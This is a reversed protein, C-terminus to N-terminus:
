KEELNFSILTTGGGAVLMSNEIQSNETLSGRARTRGLFVDESKFPAKMFVTDRAATRTIGILKDSPFKIGILKKDQNNFLSSTILFFFGDSGSEDVAAIEGELPILISRRSKISYCGIGGEREFIVRRDEDVFLIRVPRRFGTELFEHYVIKYDGGSSGLREFLLFRQKDIGSIIGIRSGNSSIACGLIVAFRSGTPEFYFIRDGNSNFVEVVGDLSGTLVLGAAADIATLPAGFEYTWKFNGNAEIESLSNQESGLIFIRDDLLVPYGRANNINVETNHLMNNITIRAPEAGYETWMNRSLYIDATKTKNVAFQGLSDVYGFRNGLTFPLLQGSLKHPDTKIEEGDMLSSVPLSSIWKHALITEKPIPRAAIFFYIIFILLIVFVKIRRKKQAM